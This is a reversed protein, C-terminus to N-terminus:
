CPAASYDCVRVSHKLIHSVNKGADTVVLHANTLETTPEDFPGNLKAVDADAGAAMAHNFFAAWACQLPAAVSDTFTPTKVAFAQAKCGDQMVQLGDCYTM